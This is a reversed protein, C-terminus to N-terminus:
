DFVARLVAISINNNNFDSGNSTLAYSVNNDDFHSFVSTFGDIGGTHGYSVKDYFPIQFLGMGYGDKITKMKELSEAKLLKGNFLANSFKVLDIPTSVIAGAGLPVSM